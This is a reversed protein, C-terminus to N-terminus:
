RRQFSLPSTVMFIFIVTAWTCISTAQICVCCCVFLFHICSTNWFHKNSTISLLLFIILKFLFMCSLILSQIFGNWQLGLFWYPSCYKSLLLKNNLASSFYDCYYYFYIHLIVDCYSFPIASFMFLSSYLFSFSMFNHLILKITVFTLSKWFSDKTYVLFSFLSRGPGSPPSFVFQLVTLVLQFYASSFRQM